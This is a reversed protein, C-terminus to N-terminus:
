VSQAVSDCSISQDHTCQLYKIVNKWVILHRAAEVNWVGFTGRKEFRNYNKPLDLNSSLTNHAMIEHVHRRSGAYQGMAAMM